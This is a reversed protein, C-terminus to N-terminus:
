KQEVYWEPHEERRKIEMEAVHRKAKNFVEEPINEDLLKKLFESLGMRQDFTYIRMAEDYLENFLFTKRVIVYDDKDYQPKKSDKKKKHEEAMKESIKEKDEFDNIM